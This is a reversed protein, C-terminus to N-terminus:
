EKLVGQETGGGKDGKCASLPVSPPLEQVSYPPTKGGRDVGRDRQGGVNLFLRNINDIHISASLLCTWTSQHCM